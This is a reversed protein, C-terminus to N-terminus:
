LKKRTETYFIIICHKWCPEVIYFLSLLVDIRSVSGSVIISQYFMEGLCPKIENHESGIGAVFPCPFLAYIWRGGEGNYVVGVGTM